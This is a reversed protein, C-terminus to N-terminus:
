PTPEDVLGRWFGNEVSRALWRQADSPLQPLHSAPCAQELRALAEGVPLEELLTLLRAELPELPELALQGPKSPSRVLLWFQPQTLRPPLPVATERTDAVLTRRLECLAWNEELIAAAPSRQLRSTLLRDAHEAGPRFPEVQPARFARHFAADIRAAQLLAARDVTASQGDIPVSPSAAVQGLFDEFGTVAAEIDWGRPPHAQLFRCVYDNCTFHSLLRTTLPFAAHFLTFLRAWYQRNYIALREASSLSGGPLAAMKLASDYAEPTVQLTGTRRELPTRIMAGFSAQFGALWDLRARESV